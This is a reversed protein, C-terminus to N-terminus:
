KWRIAPPPLRKSVRQQHGQQTPEFKHASSSGEIELHGAGCDMRVDGAVSEAQSVRQESIQEAEFPNVASQSPGIACNVSPGNQHESAKQAPTADDIPQGFSTHMTVNSGGALTKEADVTSETLADEPQVAPSSAPASPNPTNAPAFLATSSGKATDSLLHSDTGLFSLTAVAQSSLDPHPDSALLQPLLSATASGADAASVEPEANAPQSLACHPAASIGIVAATVEARGAATTRPSMIQQLPMTERSEHCSVPPRSMAEYDDDISSACGHSSGSMGASPCCAADGSMASMESAHDGLDIEEDSDPVGLDYFCEAEPRPHVAGFSIVHPTVYDPGSLRLVAAVNNYREGPLQFQPYDPASFVTLLKGSATSHDESWGSTMPPMDERDYRADPGEHSRIVLRLDNASLFAETVDPGFVCGVGRCVNAHLGATAVPDSWLVDAAVATSGQGSPDMGGKSSSRLDSLCGIDLLAEAGGRRRKKGRKLAAPKRFLGGHLVLTKKAICAALPLSAFLRKCQKFVTKGKVVGYKKQLEQWFGYLKTCSVSEHNGRLLIVSAPLALKWAALVALLELGWAGRDVFDGNFVLINKDADPEGTASILPGIVDHLHGHTDGIVNVLSQAPPDFEVLTPEAHLRQTAHQFLLSAAEASLVSNVPMGSRTAADLRASLLQAFGVDYVAPLDVAETNSAKM